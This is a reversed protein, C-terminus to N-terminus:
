PLPRGFRDDEAMEGGSGGVGGGSRRGRIRSMLLEAGRAGVYVRPLGRSVGLLGGCLQGEKTAIVITLHLFHPFIVDLFHFQLPDLFQALVLRSHFSQPNRVLLPFCCLIGLLLRLRNLTLGSLFLEALHQYTSNVNSGKYSPSIRNENQNGNYEEEEEITTKNERSLESKNHTHIYIYKCRKIWNNDQM